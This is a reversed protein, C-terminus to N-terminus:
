AECWGQLGLTHEGVELSSYGVGDEEVEMALVGASRVLVRDSYATRKHNSSSRHICM